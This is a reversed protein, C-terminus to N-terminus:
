RAIKRVSSLGSASIFSQELELLEECGPLVRLGARIATFFSESDNQERAWEAAACSAKVALVVMRTTTGDLDAWLYNSGAFPTDRILSLETLLRNATSTDALFEEYAIRLLDYDSVLVRGIDIEDTFTPPIWSVDETSPVLLNLGRRMDSMVTSFSSDSIDIEWVATRVASRRARDSNMALWALVEVSRKKGFQASVGQSNQVTPFGYMRVVADWMRVPTSSHEYNASRLIREVENDVIDADPELAFISPPEVCHNKFRYLDSTASDSLRPAMERNQIQERRRHLVKRLIWTMAIPDAVTRTPLEAAVSSASQIHSQRPWVSLVVLVCAEWRKALSRSSRSSNRADSRRMMQLSTAILALVTSFLVCNILFEIERLTVTGDLFRGIHAQSLFSVCRTSAYVGVFLCAIRMWWRM